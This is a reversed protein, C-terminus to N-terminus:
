RVFVGEGATATAHEFRLSGRKGEGLQVHVADREATRVPHLIQFVPAFKRGNQEAM